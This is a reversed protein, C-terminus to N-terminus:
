RLSALYDAFTREGTVYEGQPLLGGHTMGRGAKGPMPVPLVPRRSGRAREIRRAMDVMPLKEPGAIQVIRGSPGAEALRVLETAVDAAAVPQCLMRPMPALPFHHTLLQEPFEFFQTARLVTWPVGSASVVEEQARKGLYYGYDVRDIGVISLAILHGVGAERAAAALNGTVKTFFETAIKRRTTLRNTVDIAAGCGDIREALGVGSTLDIGQSRALVVPDHGAARLGAVVLRGVLGTGGAVAVRM